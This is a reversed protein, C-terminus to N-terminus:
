LENKSVLTLQPRHNRANNPKGNPRGQRRSAIATAGSCANAMVITHDVLPVRHQKLLVDVHEASVGQYSYSGNRGTAIAVMELDSYRLVQMKRKLVEYGYEVVKASVYEMDLTRALQLLKHGQEVFYKGEIKVVRIAPEKQGRCELGLLSFMYRTLKSSKPYHYINSDYARATAVGALSCLLSLRVRRIGLDKGPALWYLPYNKEPREWGEPAANKFYNILKGLSSGSPKTMMFVIGKRGNNPNTIYKVYTNIVIKCTKGIFALPKIFKNTM